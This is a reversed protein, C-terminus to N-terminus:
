YERVHKLGDVKAKRLFREDATYIPAGSMLALALYVADYITIAYDYALRTAMECQAKDLFKLDMQMDLLDKLALAVDRAGFDPSYRLANGVEYLLLYPALIDIRGAVYDDRLRLCKDTYEEINYWKVVISADIVIKEAGEM